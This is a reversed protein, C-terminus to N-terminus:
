CLDDFVGAKIATDAMNMTGLVYDRIFNAMDENTKGEKKHSLCMASLTDLVLKFVDKGKGTADFDSTGNKYEEICFAVSVEKDNLYGKM